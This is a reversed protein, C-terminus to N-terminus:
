KVDLMSVQGKHQACREGPSVLHKCPTGKRTRAGCQVKAPKEIEPHGGSSTGSSVITNVASVEPGSSSHRGIAAVLLIVLVALIPLMRKYAGIRRACDRCLYPHSWWTKRTDQENGCEACFNARYFLSLM